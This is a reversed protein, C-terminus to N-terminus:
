LSVDIYSTEGDNLQELINAKLKALETDLDNENTIHWKSPGYQSIRRMKPSKIPATIETSAKETNSTPTVEVSNPVIIKALEKEIQRLLSEYHRDGLITKSSLEQINVASKAGNIINQMASTFDHSLKDKIAEDIDTDKILGLGNNLHENLQDSVKQEEQDFVKTFLETFLETDDKIGQLKKANGANLANALRDAVTVLEADTIFEKSKDYIEVKMLGKDWFEQSKSNRYFDFVDNDEMDEHWDLLDDELKAVEAYFEATDTIQLLRNFYSIGKELYVHGPYQNKRGDYNKLTELDNDITQRLEVVLGDESETNFSRKNFVDRAIEKLTKVQKAPIAQKIKLSLHEHQQRKTFFNAFEQNTRRTDALSIKEGDLNIEIKGTVFLKAVLWAVDIDHYGYPAMAFKDIITKLSVKTNRTNESSIRELVSTLAQQNDGDLVDLELGGREKFLDVVDSEKKAATIYDLNRYTNEVTIQM